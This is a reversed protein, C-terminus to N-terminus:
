KEPKQLSAMRDKQYAEDAERMWSSMPRGVTRQYEAEMERSEEDEDQEEPPLLILTPLVIEEAEDLRAGMAMLQRIEKEAAHAALNLEADVRDEAVLDAWKQPLFEMWHAAAKSKLEQIM